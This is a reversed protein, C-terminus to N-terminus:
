TTTKKYHKGLKRMLYNVKWDVEEDEKKLKQEVERQKEDWRDADKGRGSERLHKKYTQDLSHTTAIRRYRRLPRVDNDLEFSYTASASISETTSTSGETDIHTNMTDGGSLFSFMKGFFRLLGFSREAIVFPCTCIWLVALKM